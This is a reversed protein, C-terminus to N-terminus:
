EVAGDDETIIPPTHMLKAARKMSVPRSAKKPPAFLQDWTSGDIPAYFRRLVTETVYQRQDPLQLYYGLEDQGVCYTKRIDIYAPARAASVYRVVATM